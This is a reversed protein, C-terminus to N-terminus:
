SLNPVDSMNQMSTGNRGNNKKGEIHARDLAPVTKGHTQIAALVTLSISNPNFQGLKSFICWSRYGVYHLHYNFYLFKACTYLILTM